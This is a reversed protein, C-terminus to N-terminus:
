RASKRRAYNLAGNADLALVPLKLRENTVSVPQITDSHYRTLGPKHNEQWIPRGSPTGIEALANELGTRESVPSAISGAARRDSERVDIGSMDRPDSLGAFTVV